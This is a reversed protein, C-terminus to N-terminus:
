RWDDLLFVDPRNYGPENPKEMIVGQGDTRFGRQLLRVYAEHRATNVGAHLRQLGRERALADCAALLQEFDDAAAPGPRVAAFKVYCTGSGAETGAGCHCVAFAAVDDGRWVLVTDGLQQAAVARMELSLDLGDYIAGTIERCAAFLRKRDAGADSLKTWRAPAEAPAAAVPRSMLATLFRPWFGFGQYLRLHKASHPFTFLGGHRTGWRDFCAMIPQLLQKGIGRDWLDPRITLPGFFGVTGWCCAINSGALEGDVYAGFVASPDARWRTRIFDADGAFTAPDPLGIFTGFALRFIRDAADLDAEALPRVSVNLSERAHQVTV